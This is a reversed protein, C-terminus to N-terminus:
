ISTGLQEHLLLGAGDELGRWDVLGGKKPLHPMHINEAASLNDFLSLEQHITGFGLNDIDAPTLTSFVRGAITITGEDPTVLGSLINKLTSKGAGNEGLLALVEGARLSFSIDRLVRVPGFSKRLGDIRLFPQTDDGASVVERVPKEGTVTAM